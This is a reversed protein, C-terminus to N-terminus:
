VCGIDKKIINLIKCHSKLLSDPLVSMEFNHQLVNVYHTTEPFTECLVLASESPSRTYFSESLKLLGGIRLILKSLHPLRQILIELNNTKAVSDLKAEAQMVAFLVLKQQLTKFRWIPLSLDEGYLVKGTQSILLINFLYEPTRKSCDVVKIDLHPISPCAKNASESIKQTIKKAENTDGLVFLLVDIDLPECVSYEIPILSSGRIYLSVSRPIEFWLEDIFPALSKKISDFYSTM